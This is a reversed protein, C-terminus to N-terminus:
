GRTVRGAHLCRGLGRMGEVVAEVQAEVSQQIDVAIVPEEPGPEELTALQSALLSPPMFHGRRNAMRAGLTSRDGALYVFALQRRGAALRTRYARKLASCTIVGGVGARLWGDIWDAVADLWPARDADTLPEGHKMKAVNAPPHLEDGEMFSWGLRQALRTGVTSKGSGSVGMVVLVSPIM